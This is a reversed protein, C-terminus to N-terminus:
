QINNINTLKNNIIDIELIKKNSLAVKDKISPLSAYSRYTSSAKDM